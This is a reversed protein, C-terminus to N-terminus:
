PGTVPEQRTYLLAGPQHPKGGGLRRLLKLSPCEPPSFGGPAELIFRAEPGADLFLSAVRFLAEAQTALCAYPPDAFIWVYRGRGQWTFVEEGYVQWTPLAPRQGFARLTAEANQTILPRCPPYKDVFDCSAAGRSLAELGYAGTGAFLDLVRAGEPPAGLSSFVAQRLADTAPRVADGRPSRLTIGRAIGGTIRM